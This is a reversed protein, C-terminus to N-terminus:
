PNIRQIKTWVQYCDDSYAVAGFGTVLHLNTDLSVDTIKAKREVTGSGDYYDYGVYESSGLRWGGGSQAMLQRYYVAIVDAHGGAFGLGVGTIAHGSPVTFEVEPNISLGVTATLQSGLTCDTELKRYKARITTVQDNYVRIGISTLFHGAPAIFEQENVYLAGAYANHVSWAGSLSCSATSGGGGGNGGSNSPAISCDNGMYGGQCICSCDDEILMGGNLCNLDCNPKCSAMALAATFGIIGISINPHAM